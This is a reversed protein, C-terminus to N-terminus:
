SGQIRSLIQWNNNRRIKIQRDPARATDDSMPGFGATRHPSGATPSRTEPSKNRPPANIVSSPPPLFFLTAKGLSWSGTASGGAEECWGVFSLPDASSFCLYVRRRRGPLFQVSDRRTNRNELPGRFNPRKQPPVPTKPGM